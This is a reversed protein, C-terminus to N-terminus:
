SPVGRGHSPGGSQRLLIVSPTGRGDDNSAPGDSSIVAYATGDPAVANWIFDLLNRNDGFGPLGCLIGDFCINARHVPAAIPRVREVVPAGTNAKTIRAMEVYWDQDDAPDPLTGRLYVLSLTGFAGGAISGYVNSGGAPAVNVPGTWTAGLDSSTFLHASHHGGISGNALVYLIGAQDVTMWNFGTILSDGPEGMFVPHSVMRGDVLRAVYLRNSVGIPDSPGLSNEGGLGYLVFVEGTVPDVTLHDVYANLGGTAAEAANPSTGGAAAPVVGTGYILLPVPSPPFSRGGDRSIYVYPIGDFGKAVVSVLGAGFHDIWPRDYVDAAITTTTWTTGSDDSRHVLIGDDLFSLDVAVVSTETLWRMDWDGGGTKSFSPKYKVFSAGYNTSRYFTAPSDNGLGALIVTRGSPSISVNPEGGGAKFVTSSFALTTAARGPLASAALALVAATLALTKRSM